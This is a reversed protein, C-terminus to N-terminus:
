KDGPKERLRRVLPLNVTVILFFFFVILYSGPIKFVHGIQSLIYFRPARSILVGFMYKLVPYRSIVVLLRIPFFPLPTFGAIVIAFFPAKNFLKVIREVIQMKQIREFMKTSSIYQLVSYNVGEAMVTSIVAVITVTTPSYYKGYYLLIPEHPLLGFLFESPFSYFFLIVLSKSTRVSDSLLWTGLLAFVIAIEFLFLLTSVKFRKRTKKEILQSETDRSINM